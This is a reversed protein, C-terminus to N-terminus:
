EPKRNLTTKCERIVNHVATAHLAEGDIRGTFEVTYAGLPGLGNGKATVRGEADLLGRITYHGMMGPRGDDMSFGGNEIRAVRFKTFPGLKPTGACSYEGQWEGDFRAIGTTPRANMKWWIGAAAAVVVIGAAAIAVTRRADARKKASRRGGSTAALQYARVPQPINKVKQEGMDQFVFSFKSEVQERVSNSICIGGPEAISELRAAINVGDGLLDSGNIMVDGLNIGMRFWMQRPEPLDRNRSALAEQVALGCRVAEVPSDFEAIVSDGATNFIRGHHQEILEDFIIRHSRLTAITEEENERIMRSYGVVDAALIAALKRKLTM